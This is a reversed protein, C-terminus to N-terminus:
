SSINLIKSETKIENIREEKKEKLRHKKKTENNRDAEASSLESNLRQKEEELQALRRDVETIHIYSLDQLKKKIESLDIDINKAEKVLRVIESNTDEKISSKFNETYRRIIAEKKEDNHFYKALFKLDIKEKIQQIEKELNENERKLKEKEEISQKYEISDEIDAIEGEKRKDKEKIGEIKKNLEEIKGGLEKEHMNIEDIKQFSDKIKNIVNAEEFIKKNENIISNLDKILSNIKDKIDGLEKGILITAKEFPERSSKNFDSVIHNMKRIYGEIEIDEIGKFSELLKNLHSIYLNLNEKVIFKIKETEKIRDTDIEQLSKIKEQVQSSFYTVKEQMSKRINEKKEKIKDLEPDLREKLQELTLVEKKEEKKEEDSFFKKIKDLWTM